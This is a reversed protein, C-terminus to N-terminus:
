NLNEVQPLRSEGLFLRMSSKLLSTDIGSLNNTTQKPTKNTKNLPNISTPLGVIFTLPETEHAPGRIAFSYLSCVACYAPVCKNRDAKSQPHSTVLQKM